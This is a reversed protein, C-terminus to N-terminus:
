FLTWAASAPAAAISRRWAVIYRISMKTAALKRTSTRNITIPEAISHYRNNAPRLRILSCSLWNTGRASTAVLQAFLSRFLTEFFLRNGFLTQSRSPAFNYPPWSPLGVIGNPILFGGAILQRSDSSFRSQLRLRGGKRGPRHM